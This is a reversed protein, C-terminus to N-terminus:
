MTFTSTTEQLHVICIESNRYWSFMSRISEEVESSHERNICGTDFWVYKCNYVRALKCFHFVKDLAGGVGKGRQPMHRRWRELQDEGSGQGMGQEKEVMVLDQYSLEKPLWRHSLIAYGTEATLMKRVELERAVAGLKWHTEALNKIAPELLTRIDNRSVIEMTVLSLLHIPLHYIRDDAM